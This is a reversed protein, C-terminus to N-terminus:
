KNLTNNIFNRIMQALAANNKHGPCHLLFHAKIPMGVLMMDGMFDLLKHRAPENPFYPQITNLVGNEVKLSGADRHYINGLMAAEEAELPHDVFVLANDLAGGKILGMQLLPLIEHLFVFTRCPAFESAFSNYDEFDATQRGIVRSSFDITSTITLRDAPLVAYEVGEKTNCFSLPEQPAFYRREAALPTMGVRAIEEVWPRASGDLIPVEEGDIEIEVNDVRLGQLAALLHEGTSVRVGDVGVTTGRATDVVYEALIPIKVEPSCDVRRYYVGTDAAAPHLTVSVKKGTHLGIGQLTFSENLTTQLDM